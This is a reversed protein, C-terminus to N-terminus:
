VAPSAAGGSSPRGRWRRRRRRQGSQDGGPPRSPPRSGPPRGPSRAPLRGAQHTPPLDARNGIDDGAEDDEHKGGDDDLPEIVNGPGVSDDEDVPEVRQPVAVPRAVAVPAEDPEDGAQRSPAPASGDAMTIMGTPSVVIERIRRLRTVLRPSGQPRQFGRAKLAAAVVDIVVSRRPSAEVLERVVSVLEDHPATQPADHEAPEREEVPPRTPPPPAIPARSRAPEPRPGRGGDGYRSPERQSSRGEGTGMPRGGRGRRRRRRSSSGSGADGAAREVTHRPQEAAPTEGADVKALRRYSLRQFQIGLSEAVDGVADFARDDSVIQITDGSRAAALWIGATVAIRLDSWDRVGTSPASHILQAGRQALLRAAEHGVVRWNAVAILDAQTHRREVDLHDIIHALHQPKSTNEVDLFIVRRVSPRPREPPPPPVWAAFDREPSAVPIALADEVVAEVVPEPAPLPAPPASRPRETRKRAPSPKSPSPKSAARTSQGRTPKRSGAGKPGKTM